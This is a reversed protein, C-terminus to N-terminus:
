PNFLWVVTLLSNENVNGQLKKFLAEWARDLKVDLIFISMLLYLASFCAHMLSLALKGHIEM